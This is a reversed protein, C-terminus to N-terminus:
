MPCVVMMRLPRCAARAKVPSPMSRARSCARCVGTCASQLPMDHHWRSALRAVERASCEQASCPVKQALIRCLRPPKRTRLMVFIIRSWQCVLRSSCAVRGGAGICDSRGCRICATEASRSSSLPALLRRAGGGTSAVSSWDLQPDDFWVQAVGAALAAEAAARNDVAVWLETARPTVPKELPMAWHVPQPVPQEALREIAARRLAKLQGAPVFCPASMHVKLDSLEYGSGGMAGLAKHAQTEDLPRGTAAAVIYDATVTCQTGNNARLMLALPEGVHAILEASVALGGQSFGDLRVQAM